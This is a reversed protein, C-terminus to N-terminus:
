AIMTHSQPVFRTNTDLYDFIMIHFLLEGIAWNKNFRIIRNQTEERYVQHYYIKEIQRNRVMLISRSGSFLDFVRKKLTIEERMYSLKWDLTIEFSMRKFREKMEKRIRGDKM